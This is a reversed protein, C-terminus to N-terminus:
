VDVEPLGTSMDTDVTEKELQPIPEVDEGDNRPSTQMAEPEAPELPTEIQIDGENVDIPAVAQEHDSDEDEVNDGSTHDRQRENNDGDINMIALAEGKGSGKPRLPEPTVSARNSPSRVGRPGLATTCGLGRSDSELEIRTTRGRVCLRM